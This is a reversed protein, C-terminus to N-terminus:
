KQGQKNQKARFRGYKMSKGSKTLQAKEVGIFLVVGVDGAEESTNPCGPCGSM